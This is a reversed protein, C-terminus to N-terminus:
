LFSVLSKNFFKKLLKKKISSFAISINHLLKSSTNNDKEYLIKKFISFVKEIPNFEPYYPVNFLLKNSTNNIYNKVIRSHHIRANDLLFYKNHQGELDNKIFDLFDTAKSSGKIIKYAIIKKNSIACIITFRIRVSNLEKYIRKGIQSWGKIYTIHTDVSVEDISIIDNQNISKIQKKFQRVNKNLKKRDGYIKKQYIQKYTINLKSLSTYISSKGISIQFKRKIATQLLKMKFNIRKLVYKKIYALVLFNTKKNKKTYKKKETLMNLKDLAIWNYLSSKSINYAILVDKISVSPKRFYNLVQQKFILPYYNPHGKDSSM